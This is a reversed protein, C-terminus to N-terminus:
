MTRPLISSGVGLVSLFALATLAVAGLTLALNASWRLPRSRGRVLAAVCCAALLVEFGSTVSDGFGYPPPKKADPGIPVWGVRDVWWLVAISANGIAGLVLLPPWRRLLLWIPWVLQAVASAVFFVGYLAYEDFHMKIVSFHVAAAAASALAATYLLRDGAGAGPVRASLRDALPVVSVALLAVATSVIIAAKTNTTSFGPTWPLITPAAAAVVAPPLLLVLRRRVTPRVRAAEVRDTAAAERWEQERGDVPTSQRERHSTTRM